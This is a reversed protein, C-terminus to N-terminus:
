SGWPSLQGGEGIQYSQNPNENMWSQYEPNQQLVGLERQAAAQFKQLQRLNQIAISFEPPAKPPISQKGTIWDSVQQTLDADPSTFGYQLAMQSIDVLTKNIRDGVQQVEDRKKAVDGAIKPAGAQPTTGRGGYNSGAPFGGPTGYNTVPLYGGKFLKMMDAQSYEGPKRSPTVDMTKGGFTMTNKVDPGPRPQLVEQAQNFMTNEKNWADKAMIQQLLQSAAALNEPPVTSYRSPGYYGYPGSREAVRQRRPTLLYYYLELPSSGSFSESSGFDPINLDVANGPPVWTNSIQPWNFGPM